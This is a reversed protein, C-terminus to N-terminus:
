QCVVHNRKIRKTSAIAMTLLMAQSIERCRYKRFSLIKSIFCVIWCSRSRMERSNCSLTPDCSLRIDELRSQTEFGTVGNFSSSFLLRSSSTLRMEFSTIVWRRSVIQANFFDSIENESKVSLNFSIACCCTLM